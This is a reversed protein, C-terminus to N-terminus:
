IPDEDVADGPDPIGLAEFAPRTSRKFVEELRSPRGVALRAETVAWDRFGMARLQGQEYGELLSLLGGGGDEIIAEIAHLDEQELIRLPSVRPGQLLGRAKLDTEIAATTMPNVPFGETVVLVPVYRRGTPAAAGTLAAEDRVLNTITADLQEAKQYIGRDLDTELHARSEGIVSERVLSRSSVELVVWASGCDVAADAVRGKGYAARLESEDFFRQTPGGQVIARLADKAQRECVAEFFAKTRAWDKANAPLLAAQIDFLPLWGFFRELVLHPSTVVLHGSGLRVVPWRRMADFSWQSGLRGDDAALDSRLQDLDGTVMALVAELRDVPWGFSSFWSAEFPQGPHQTARAYLGVGIAIFDERAIGTAGQFAEELDVAGPEGSMASPLDHWRLQSGILITAPDGRRHFSQSSVIGRFLRGAPTLRDPATADADTEDRGLEEQVALIVAILHSMDLDGGVRGLELAAKMTMLLGQPAVLPRGDRIMNAVREAAAGKFLRRALAYDLDRSSAGPSERENLMAACTAIVSNRDAGAMWARAVGIPIAEGFVESATMFARILDIPYPGVQASAPVWIGSPLRRARPQLAPVASGAVYARGEVPVMLFSSVDVPQSGTLLAKVRRM